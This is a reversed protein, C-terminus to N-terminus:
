RLRKTLHATLVFGEGRVVKAVVVFYKPGKVTNPYHRYYRRVLPDASDFTVSDPEALTEALRAVMSVAEPHRQHIHGLRELTLRISNGDFDLFPSM